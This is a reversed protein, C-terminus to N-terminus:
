NIIVWDFTETGAATTHTLVFSGANKTSVYVGLLTTEASTPQILIVSTTKAGATTITTATGATLIASEKSGFHISERLTGTPTFHLNTGDYEVTGTEATTLDVGSTLKLPATGATATGAKINLLATPATTGIGVNGTTRDIVLRDIYGSDYTGMTFKDTSERFGFYAKNAGAVQFYNWSDASSNAIFGISAGAGNGSYVMGNILIHGNVELKEGPSTTGIGVNGANKITVADGIGLETAINDVSYRILNGQSTRVGGLDSDAYNGYLEAYYMTPVQIASTRIVGTTVKSVELTTAPNTTGIGVNGGVPQLLLNYATATDNRMVQMWWNGTASDGGSYLGYLGTDGLLSFGGSATGLTPNTLSSNPQMISLQTDPATTGIGVNGSFYANGTAGYLRYKTIGATDSYGIVDVGNMLRMEGADTYLEFKATGTSSIATWAYQSKIAMAWNAGPITGIGINDSFYSKGIVDLANGPSTTGIGVRHNVSDTYITDTDVAIDPFTFRGIATQPTTQDLKLVDATFAFQKRAAGTTITGYYADTNFEIAGVEATDMLPGSVLKLPATGAVTTGPQVTITKHGGNAVDDVGTDYHEKTLYKNLLDGWAGDDSDVIPLRQETM